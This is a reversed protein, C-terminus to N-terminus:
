EPKITYPEGWNYWADKNSPDYYTDKFIKHIITGVDPVNREDVLVPEEYRIRSFPINSDESGPKIGKVQVEEIYEFVEHTYKEFPQVMSAVFPSGKRINAFAVSGGDIGVSFVEDKTFGAAEIARAANIAPTDWAAFVCDLDDGYKNLWGSTLNFSERPWGDKSMVVHEVVNLEPWDTPSTLLGKAAWIRRRGMGWEINLLGINGVRELRNLVYYSMKAGVVGNPQTVNCIVGPRLPTDLCYVGIGKKRAKILLDKVPEIPFVVLVIADVDKEIFNEIAQYQQDTDAADLVESIKWGRHEAELQAQLWDRHMTEIAMTTCAYGVELTEDPGVVRPVPLPEKATFSETEVAAVSLSVLGVILLCAIVLLLNRKM